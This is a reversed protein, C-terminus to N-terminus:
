GNSEDQFKEWIFDSALTWFYRGCFGSIATRLHPDPIAKVYEDETMTFVSEPYPCEPWWEPKEM